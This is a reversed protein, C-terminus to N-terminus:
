FYAIPTYFFVICLYVLITVLVAGAIAGIYTPGRKVSRAMEEVHRLDTIPFEGNKKTMVLSGDALETFSVTVFRSTAISLCVLACGILGFLVVVIGAVLSNPGKRKKFYAVNHAFTVVEWDHSTMIGVASQFLSPGRQQPLAPVTSQFPDGLLIQDIKFVWDRALSNDLETLIDRAETYRKQEILTRALNMQDQESRTSV